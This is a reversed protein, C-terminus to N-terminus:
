AFMRIACRTIAIDPRQSRATWNPLYQIGEGPSVAINVIGEVPQRVDAIPSVAPESLTTLRQRM